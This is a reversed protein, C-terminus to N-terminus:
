QIIGKVVPNARLLFRLDQLQQYLKELEPSKRLGFVTIEHNGVLSLIMAGDGTLRNLLSRDLDIRQVLWLDVINTHKALVGQHHYMRANAFRVKTTTARLYAYLVWVVWLGLGVVLAVLVVTSSKVPPQHNRLAVGAGVTAAGIAVCILLTKVVSPKRPRGIPRESKSREEASDAYRRRWDSRELIVALLMLVVGVVILAVASSPYHRAVVTLGIRGGGAAILSAGLLSLFRDTVKDLQAGFALHDFSFDLREILEIAQKSLPSADQRLFDEIGLSIDPDRLRSSPVLPPSSQVEAAPPPSPVSAATSTVASAEAHSTPWTQSRLVNLRDIASVHQPNLKLVEQYIAEAERPATQEKLRGIQYLANQNRVDRRLAEVFFSEADVPRRASLAIIGLGYCAESGSAPSERVQVFLEAAEQWRGATLASKAQALIGAEAIVTRSGGSTPTPGQIEAV